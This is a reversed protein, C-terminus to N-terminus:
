AIYFIHAKNTCPWPIDNAERHQSRLSCYRNAYILDAFCVINRPGACIFSMNEIDCLTNGPTASLLM